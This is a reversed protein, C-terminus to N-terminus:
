AFREYVKRALKDDTIRLFCVRKCAARVDFMDCENARFCDPSLYPKIKIM